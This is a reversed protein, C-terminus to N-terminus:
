SRGVFARCLKSLSAAGIFHAALGFLFIGFIILAFLLASRILMGSETFFSTVWFVSFWLCLGMFFAALVIRPLHRRLQGDWEFHGRVVLVGFLLGANIWSSLSTAVAIGVHGLFFYLLLSGIVNTVMNILACWMPTRTDERAFFGPSFIKILVFAPLGFSFARLAQATASVADSSFAGRHFLTQVVPVALVFLGAAAPLTLLMAFELSRNQGHSAQDLHGSRLNRSLEPLLVTGIAIGIVALPLQYVREAYYLYSVAGSQLSAIITGAIINIQVIGGSVLGPVGLRLLSRMDPSWVPWALGLRMGTHRSAAMWLIALQVLGAVTIGWCLVVAISKSDRLGLFHAALLAGILILNLLVPAAAAAAFRDFANLMGSLLAVVSMSILYPFSIRSLLVALNYKDADTAFGPTMLYLLWPMFIEALATVLLLIFILGALADGAFVRAAVFGDNELKKVFLPVFASGFAGEAFLRRFLNPFRFAAFFADAVPGTGLFAAVMMDRIFGFVRSLM